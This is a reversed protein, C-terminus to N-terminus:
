KGKWRADLTKRTIRVPLRALAYEKWGHDRGEPWDWDAQMKYMYENRLRELEERTVEKRKAKANDSNTASQQQKSEARKVAGSLVLSTIARTLKPSATPNLTEPDLLLACNREFGPSTLLWELTLSTSEPKEDPMTENKKM